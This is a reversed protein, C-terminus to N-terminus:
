RSEGGDGVLGFPAWFLPHAYSFASAHTAPDIAGPGDIMALMTEQLARARSLSPNAAQRAFLDTTLSRASGTEVPWYTVLLARAGAYFFARGLGSMAEAGQGNAAATNCASLVVWDADLRMSLIDGMTLLGDGAEPGAVQRPTLALAPQHLGDLDGPVLGHTAFMVVRRRSLDMDRLRRENAADGLLISDPGAALAQAVSRIEDATEPLRALAGVDASALSGTSPASRRALRAGRSQLQARAASAADPTDRRAEAAQEANFWADGIGAFPLRGGAPEPMARLGIMASVSPVQVVAAKRILWPVGAYRAFRLEGAAQRLDPSPGTALLGFPLQTLPGHPVVVLTRADGITASFPEVFAAHLRWALAADFAPIADITGANPDLAERLRQVSRALEAEGIPIRAFGLGGERRLAWAYTADHAVFLSLMAEGPALRSRTAEVTPRPPERLEDYSPFSRRISAALSTAESQLASVRAAIDAETARDRQSAPMAVLNVLTAQLATAAQRADQERRVLEALAPDRVGARQALASIAGQVSLSRVVDALEFAEAPFDRGAGPQRSAYFEIMGTLAIRRLSQMFGSLGDGAAADGSPGRRMAERSADLDALAAADNGSAAHALGRLAQAVRTSFGNAGDSRMRRQYDREAIELAEAGRGIAILAAAYNRNRFIPDTGAAREAGLERAFAEFGAVTQAYRERFFDGAIQYLRLDRMRSHSAPLGQMRGIRLLPTALAQAEEFRGQSLAINTMVGGTSLISGHFPGYIDLAESLAMRAHTEAEAYRWNNNLLRALEAHAEILSARYVNAGAVRLGARRRREMEDYSAIAERWRRQADLRRGRAELVRADAIAVVADWAPAFDGPQGTGRLLRARAVYRQAAATDGIAVANRAADAASKMALFTKNPRNQADRSREALASAEDLLAIARRANGLIGEANAERELRDPLVSLRAERAIASALKAAELASTIRGELLAVNAERAAQLSRAAADASAPTSNPGPADSAVEGAAAETATERRRAGTTDRRAIEVDLRAIVDSLSRPPPVFGTQEVLAQATGEGGQSTVPKEPTCAQLLLAIALAVLPRVPMPNLMVPM